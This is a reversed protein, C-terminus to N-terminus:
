MNLQYLCHFRAGLPVTVVASLYTVLLDDANSARAFPLIAVASRYRPFINSPILLPGVRLRGERCM